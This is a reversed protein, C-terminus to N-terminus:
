KETAKQRYLLTEMFIKTRKWFLITSDLFLKNQRFSVYFFEMFIKTKKMPIRVEFSITGIKKNEQGNIFEM